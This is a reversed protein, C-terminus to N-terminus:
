SYGWIMWKAHSQGHYIIWSNLYWWQLFGGMNEMWGEWWPVFGPFTAACSRAGLILIVWTWNPNDDTAPIQILPYHNTNIFVLYRDITLILLKDNNVTMSGVTLCHDITHIYLIYIGMTIMLNDMQNYVYLCMQGGSIMKELVWEPTCMWNWQRQWATSKHLFLGLTAFRVVFWGCYYGYISQSFVDGIQLNIIPNIM